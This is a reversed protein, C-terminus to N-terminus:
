GARRHGTLRAVVTTEGSVLRLQARGPRQGRRAVGAPSVADVTFVATRGDERVVEVTVGRRLEALRLDPASVVSVGAAGPAPTGAEWYAEEVEGGRRPRGASPGDTGPPGAEAARFPLDAGLAPVLLRLPLSARLPTLASARSPRSGKGSTRQGAHELQEVLRRHGSLGLARSPLADASTPAPRAGDTSRLLGIGTGLLAVTLVGVVWKARAM